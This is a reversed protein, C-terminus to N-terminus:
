QVIVRFRLAFDSAPALLAASGTVTSGSFAGGFPDSENVGTNNDDEATTATACSTGSFMSGVVYTLTAPLPDSAVVAQAPSDGTNRTLLCYEVIAGPIYKPNTIGNQPDSVLSNTKTTVITTTPRCMTIDHLAVAQQGPNAPATTHNGYSIIITDVSQNFTVVMTGNASANDAASDGIATNGGTIYNTIGNTLTPIVTAGNYRGEVTLLDAFQNSGFDVDFIRLQAGRMIAPLTITTTVRASRSTLDVLQALASQGTFGGNIGTQKAPSQGGFSSNSLFVGGNASVAIAFRMTGIQEIQYSNNTSGTTWARDDWDFVVSGAPCSLVPPTGAARQAATPMSWCLSTAAAAVVALTRRWGRAGGDRLGQMM